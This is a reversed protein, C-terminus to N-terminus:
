YRYRIKFLPDSKWFWGIVHRGGPDCEVKEAIESGPNAPDTLGVASEVTTARPLVTVMSISGGGQIVFSPLPGMVQFEFLRDDVKPAAIEYFLRLTRQGPKVRVVAASIGDACRGLATAVKRQEAKSTGDALAELREVLEGDYDSREIPDFAFVVGDKVHEDTYRVIPKAQAEGALPLLLLAEKEADIDASLALNSSVMVQDRDHSGDGKSIVEVVTDITTIPINTLDEFAM